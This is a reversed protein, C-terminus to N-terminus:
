LTQDTKEGKAVIRLMEVPLPQQRESAIKWACAWGYTSSM